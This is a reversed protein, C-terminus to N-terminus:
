NLKLDRVLKVLNGKYIKNFVSELSDQMSDYQKFDIFYANKFKMIDEKRAVFRKKDALPLFQISDAIHYLAKLKLEYRGPKNEIEHYYKELYATKRLMYNSFVINDKCSRMYRLLEATDSRLFLLTAKHAIFSAINENFDVKGPAYYTAHFLEHFLLNSLGGKSRKLMSSLVPDSFWGLTSWASVSRLDVDYGSAILHNYEKQALDKKFFGKYSVRGVVPFSWEYASFAYPNCATIVWLTTASRQDYITTFNRTPKYGLSDVSYQKVQEVLNLNDRDHQSLDNHVKFNQLPQTNLLVSLQGKAQYILYISTQYNFACIIAVIAFCYSLGLRLWRLAIMM